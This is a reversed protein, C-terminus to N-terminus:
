TVSKLQAKPLQPLLRAALGSGLLLGFSLVLVPLPMIQLGVLVAGGALLSALTFPEQAAAVIPREAGVLPLDLERWSSLGGELWPLHRSYGSDHLQAIAKCAESNDDALVVWDGEPWEQSLLLPLPINHSGEIHHHRFSRRSRIDILLHPHGGAQIDLLQSPSLSLQSEFTM